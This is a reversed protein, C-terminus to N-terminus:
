LEDEPDWRSIKALPRYYYQKYKKTESRKAPRPMMSRVLAAREQDEDKEPVYFWQAELPRGAEDKFSSEVKGFVGCGGTSAEGEELVREIIGMWEKESREAGMAPRTELASKYLASAPLCSARSLALSEILMGRIEDDLAQTSPDKAIRQPPPAAPKHKPKSTSTSASSSSSKKQSSSSSSSSSSTEASSEREREVNTNKRQKKPKPLVSKPNHHNEDEEGQEDELRRKAKTKVKATKKREVDKSGSAEMGEAAQVHHVKAKKRAPANGNGTSSVGDKKRKRVEEVAGNEDKTRLAELEREQLKSPAKERAHAQSEVHITWETEVNEMRSTGATDGNDECPSPVTVECLVQPQLPAGTDPVADAGAPSGSSSPEATSDVSLRPKLEPEPESLPASLATPSGMAAGMASVDIGPEMRGPDREADQEMNSNQGSVCVAHVCHNDSHTDVLDAEHEHEPAVDTSPSESPHVAPLTAENDMGVELQLDEEPEVPLSDMFSLPSSPPLVPSSPAFSLPSISRMLPSAPLSSPPPSSPPLSSHAHAHAHTHSHLPADEDLPLGVGSDYESTDSTLSPLDSSDARLGLLSSPVETADLLSEGREEPLIQSPLSPGSSSLPDSITRTALLLPSVTRAPASQRYATVRLPPPDFRWQGREASVRFFTTRVDTSTFFSDDDDMSLEDESETFISSNHQRTHEAAFLTRQPSLRQHQQAPIRSADPRTSPMIHPADVFLSKYGPSSAQANSKGDRSGRWGNGVVDIYEDEERREIEVGFAPSSRICAYAHAGYSHPTMPPSSSRPPSSSMSSFPRRSDSWTSLPPLSMNSTSSLTRKRSAPIALPALTNSM